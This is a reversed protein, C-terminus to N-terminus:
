SLRKKKCTIVHQTAAPATKNVIVPVHHAVTHALAPFLLIPKRDKM